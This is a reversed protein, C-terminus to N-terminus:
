VHEATTDTILGMGTVWRPVPEYAVTRMEGGWIGLGTMWARVENAGNGAVEELEREDIAFLAELDGGTLRDLFWRDWEANVRGEHQDAIRQALSAERGKNYEVVQERGDILFERTEDDTAPDYPSMPRVWHSLGGSALVLVRLDDDMGRLADGVARGFEYSRRLSPQPPAGCNVMIPLMPVDMGPVLVEYPQTIGHDIGMRLSFAPDFGASQVSEVVKRGIGPLHPLPGRYGGYDGFSQVEGTGICFQPMLDFFFNRFHDPGVVVVLDPSLARVQEEIQGVGRVFHEGPGTVGPKGDWFPSHSVATYGIISAM